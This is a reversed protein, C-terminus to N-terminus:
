TKRKPGTTWPATNWPRTARPVTKWHRVWSAPAKLMIAVNLLMSRDYGNQVRCPVSSNRARWFASVALPYFADCHGQDQHTILATIVPVSVSHFQPLPSSLARRSVAQKLGHSLKKQKLIGKLHTVRMVGLHKRKQFQQGSSHPKIGERCRSTSQRYLTM